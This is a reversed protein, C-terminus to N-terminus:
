AETESFLCLVGTWDLAQITKGVRAIEVGSYIGLLPVSHDTMAQQVGSAEEQEMGCFKAARGLCDIYFAFFPKFEEGQDAFYADINERVYGFDVSRRMLQVKDGAKLDPEFMILARHEEDIAFCLRNAYNEERFSMYPDGRNLGLTIFLPFDKPSYPSDPGLLSLIKDIAPEGDIEFVVNGETKTITHYGGVPRCGHLILTEMKVKGNAILATAMQVFLGDKTWEHCPQSLFPDAVIGVGAIEPLTNGGSKITAILANVLPTALNLAPPGFQSTRAISDYLLIMSANDTAGTNAVHKLYQMGLSHGADAERGAVPGAMLVTSHFKGKPICAIGIEYGSYSLSENTIVGVTSGGFLLVDNGVVDRVERLVIEPDHQPGAFLFVCEFPGSTKSLAQAIAERVAERTQILSSSGVGIPSM